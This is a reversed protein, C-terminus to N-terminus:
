TYAERITDINRRLLAEYAALGGGQEDGSMGMDLAAVSVGCERALAQAASDSGNQEIFVCPIHHTQILQTLENIERASAESGEEEEVSALITLGFADAFYAFGDHFPILEKCPLDAVEARLEEQLATLQESVQDANAQYADMHAPDKTTLGIAINQAMQGALAPSLWYHPDYEEHDADHDHDGHDHGEEAHRLPMDRSADWYDRSALVDDLFSELGAGNIVLLDASEIIKMDAMTLTYNHLCSLQQNVVLKVTVDPVDQTVAQTMLYVPYTTCAVVFGHEAATEQRGCATLTTLALTLSLLLAFFRKLKDNRTKKTRHKRIRTRVDM